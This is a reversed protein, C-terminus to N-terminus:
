FTSIKHVGFDGGGRCVKADPFWQVSNMSCVIVPTETTNVQTGYKKAKAMMTSLQDYAAGHIQRVTDPELADDGDLLSNIYVTNLGPPPEVWLGANELHQRVTYDRTQFSEGPLQNVIRFHAYPAM